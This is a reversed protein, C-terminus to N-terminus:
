RAQVKPLRKRIRSSKHPLKASSAVPKQPGPSQPAAKPQSPTNSKPTSTPPGKPKPTSANSSPPGSNGPKPISPNPAPTAKSAQSSSKTGAKSSIIATTGPSRSLSPQSAKPPSGSQPGATTSGKSGSPKVQNNFIIHKPNVKYNLCDSSTTGGHKATLTGRDCKEYDLKQNNAGGNCGSVPDTVQTVSLELTNDNDIAYDNVIGNGSTVQTGKSSACFQLITDLM